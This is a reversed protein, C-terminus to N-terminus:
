LPAVTFNDITFNLNDGRLGTGGAVLIPAGNAGADVVDLVKVGNLSLTLNVGQSLTKITGEVKATKNLPLVSPLYSGIEYYTGGNSPGGPVKKKVIIKGDRRLFSIYYLSEESQYRMFIHAGDWDVAPTTAATVFALPTFDFSIKVNGFDKRKTVCRFICSNNAKASLADPNGGDPNGTWGQNSKRFLSGSTMEWNPSKVSEKLTPNWFAYENTILGDIGDFNDVFPAPKTSGNKPMLSWVPPTVVADYQTQLLTLVAEQDEPTNFNIQVSKTM